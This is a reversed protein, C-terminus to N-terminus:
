KRSIRNLLINIHRDLQAKMDELIDPEANLSNQTIESYNEWWIPPIISGHFYHKCSSCWIWVGGVKNQGRSNFYIHADKTNCIPCKEPLHATKEKVVKALLSQLRDEIATNDTAWM